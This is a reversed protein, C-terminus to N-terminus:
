DIKYKTCLMRNAMDAQLTVIDAEATILRNNIETLDVGEAPILAVLKDTLANILTIQGFYVKDYNEKLAILEEKTM